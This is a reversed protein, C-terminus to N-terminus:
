YLNWWCLLSYFNLKATNYMAILAGTFCGNQYYRHPFSQILIFVAFLIWNVSIPLCCRLKSKTFFVSSCHITPGFPYTIVGQIGSPSLWSEHYLILNFLVKYELLRSASIFDGVNLLKRPVRVPFCLLSDPQWRDTLLLPCAVKEGIDKLPEVVEWKPESRFFM